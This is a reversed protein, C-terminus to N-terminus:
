LPILRHYGDDDKSGAEASAFNFRKDADERDQKVLSYPRTPHTSTSPANISPCHAGMNCAAFEPGSVTTANNKFSSINNSECSGFHQKNNLGCVSYEGPPNNIIEGRTFQCRDYHNSLTNSDRSRSLHDLNVSDGNRTRVSPNENRNASDPFKDCGSNQQSTKSCRWWCFTVVCSLIVFALSGCLVYFVVTLTECDIWDQIDEKDISTNVQTSSQASLSFNKKTMHTSSQESLSVNKKTMYPLCGVYQNCYEETTCSCTEECKRGYSGNPCPTQCNDACSDNIKRYGACCREANNTTPCINSDLDAIDFLLIWLVLVSKGLM